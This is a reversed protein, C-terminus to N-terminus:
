VVHKWRRRKVIDHVTVYNVGFMRGIKEYSLKKEERISRIKQVDEETLIANYCREGRCTTGHEERDAQNKKPTAWSLNSLKNNAPNPDPYHRAQHGTPCPGVFAELVLKHIFVRETKRGRSLNACVHGFYNGKSKTLVREPYHYTRGDRYRITRAVAKVEGTDSVKYYGKYGVVWKWKM